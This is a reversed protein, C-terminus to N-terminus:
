KRIETGLNTGLISTNPSVIRTAFLPGSTMIGGSRSGAASPTFTTFNVGTINANTVVEQRNPPSAQHGALSPTITYTGAILGTISYNGSGDATVNGSAAGSYFVTAGAGAAGLAGSVTLPTQGPSNPGQGPTTNGAHSTDVALPFSNVPSEPEPLANGLLPWYGSLNATDVRPTGGYYSATIMQAPTLSDEWVGVTDINGDFGYTNGGSGIPQQNGVEMPYANTDVIVNANQSAYFVEVGNVYLRSIGTTSNYVYTIYQWINLVITGTVSVATSSNKGAASIGKLVGNSLLFPGYNVAALAIIWGSNNGGAPPFSTPYIWASYTWDNVAPQVFNGSTVLGGSFSAGRVFARSM